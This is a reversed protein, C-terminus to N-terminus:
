DKFKFKIVLDVLVAKSDKPDIKADISDIVPVPLAEITERIVDEKLDPTIEKGEFKKLAHKISDSILSEM